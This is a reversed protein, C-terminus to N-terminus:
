EGLSPTMTGFESKVLEENYHCCDGPAHLVFNKFKLISTDNTKRWRQNCKGCYYTEGVISHFAFVPKELEAIRDKLQDIEEYLKFIHFAATNEKVTEDAKCISSYSFVLILIIIYKM